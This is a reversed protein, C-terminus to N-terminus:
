HNTEEKCFAVEWFLVFSILVCVWICYLKWDNKWGVVMRATAGFRGEGYLQACKEDLLADGVARGFAEKKIDTVSRRPPYIDTYPPPVPESDPVINCISNRRALQQGPMTDCISNRRLLTKEDMSNCLSNRRFPKEDYEVTDYGSDHPFSEKEPLADCVGYEVLNHSSDRQHFSEKEPLADCVGYEISNRRSIAWEHAPTSVRTGVRSLYSSPTAEGSQASSQSYNNSGIFAAVEPEKAAAMDAPCLGLLCRITPDGRAYVVKRLVKFHWHLCAMHMATMGNQDRIDPNAGRALLGAALKDFGLSASLHLMTQGSANCADYCPPISSDAQDIFDLISLMSSELNSTAQHQYPQPGYVSPQNISREQVQPQRMLAEQSGLVSPQDISKEQPEHILMEQSGPMLPLDLISTVQRQGPEMEDLSEDLPGQDIAEPYQNLMSGDLFQPNLTGQDEYSQTNFGTRTHAGADTYQGGNTRHDLADLALKWMDPGQNDVYQFLAHKEGAPLDIGRVKVSVLGPQSSPPIVCVITNDGWIQTQTAIANGFLIQVGRRFGQGLVTVEIGGSVSGEAPIVKVVKPVVINSAQMPDASQPMSSRSLDNLSRTLADAHDVMNMGTDSQQQGTAPPSVDPTSFIDVDTASGPGDPIFLPPQATETSGQTYPRITTDTDMNGQTYPRITTATNGSVEPEQGGTNDYGNPVASAATAGVSAMTLMLSLPNMSPIPKGMMLVDSIASSSTPSASQQPQQTSEVPSIRTM